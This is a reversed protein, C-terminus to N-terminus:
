STAGQNEANTCIVPEYTAYMHNGKLNWVSRKHWDYVLAGPSYTRIEGCENLM